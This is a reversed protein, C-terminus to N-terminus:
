PYEIVRVNQTGTNSIVQIATQVVIGPPPEWASCPPFQDHSAYVAASAGYNVAVSDTNACDTKFQIGKRTANAAILQGSSTTAAVKTIAPASVVASSQVAFTGANTVAITQASAINVTGIIKTTEAALTAAAQVAFTGANSVPQTAQWFTGTVGITQAAAINVTGIIKTTEAALTATVAGAIQQTYQGIPTTGAYLIGVSAAVIGISLMIAKKM